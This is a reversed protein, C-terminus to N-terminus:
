LDLILLQNNLLILIDQYINILSYYKTDKNNKILLNYVVKKDSLNILIHQFSQIDNM